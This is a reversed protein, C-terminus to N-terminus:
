DTGYSRLIPRVSASGERELLSYMTFEVSGINVRVALRFYRSNVSLPATVDEPLLDSLETLHEWGDEPRDEVITAADSASMTESLSMLVPITATNVNISSGTPLATIHPALVDFVEREMEPLSYLESTSTM